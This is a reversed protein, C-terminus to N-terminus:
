IKVVQYFLRPKIEIVPLRVSLFQQPVKPEYHHNITDLQIISSSITWETERRFRKHGQGKVESRSFFLWRGRMMTILQVLQLIKWRITWGSLCQFTWRRVIKSQLGELTGINGIFDEDKLFHGINGINKNLIAQLM